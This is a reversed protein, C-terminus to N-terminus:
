LLFKFFILFRAKEYSFFREYNSFQFENADFYISFNDNEDMADYFIDHNWKFRSM